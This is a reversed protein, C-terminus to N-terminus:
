NLRIDDALLLVFIYIRLCLYFGGNQKGINDCELDISVVQTYLKICLTSRNDSM